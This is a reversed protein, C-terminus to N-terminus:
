ACVRELDARAQDVTVGAKMRGVGRVFRAERIRLLQASLQAPIWVEITSPAFNKPMVGVISYGAGALVLRREIVTPDRNYRRTWLGESIVAAQPGGSIEEESLFVRGILPATGFVTFYRPAVRQGALREPESRSTDTVNESYSGSLAEFTRSLRNWDELRAPAILSARESKAPNAEMVAVVRDPQPYPLPRLLVTDIISFLASNAGIGFALVSITTFTFAPRHLVSRLSTKWHAM